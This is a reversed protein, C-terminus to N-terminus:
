RTEAEKAGRKAAYEVAAAVFDRFLPHAKNPRSKFEPHFQVGVFWPHGPLEVMEVLSGDPSLGSLCLGKEVLLTRFDNNFEYRHRHREWIEETGYAHFARTDRSTIHCPYAGLRMTGGKSVVERQEPMLDIVPHATSALETSHADALGAAHRAFEIVAMQMGLCIGFYPVRNERAWRIASLMGDVGRSGFGGPVIVGACGGLMQAANDDNLQESDVWRIAVQVSNEIGGHALAEAVSLYADHLAVYKGVLAIEVWGHPHKAREVMTRWQNLDADAGGLKLRQCVVRALGERELMLPVEYLIPATQNAIVQEPPINCFLSIKDRIDQPIEADSRCLIVDPQIGLGLLEKVSHQTPKSKLEGTGPISVILSVHIYLVNQRGVEVAVQRIAELFPQSEIDGVTGGIETIVVDIGPRRGVRYVREKIENTIHPIVQVTGGLFAGERERNLVSWYIKGSTVSSDVTLDEDTFREYHGLDLDTEAGDETVFVEGHQYPSMTGPDVNLYPDFKQLAVKLGRAKLLRGLSAAAIGKGLGSVVGGTVFIYKTM